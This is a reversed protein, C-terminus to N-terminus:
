LEVMDYANESETIFEIDKSISSIENLLTEVVLQRNENSTDAAIHDLCNLRDRYTKYLILVESTAFDVDGNWELRTSEELDSIIDCGDAKIWWRHLRSAEDLTTM